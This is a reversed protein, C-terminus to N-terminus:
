GATEQLSTGERALKFILVMVGDKMDARLTEPEIKAPLPVSRMFRGYKREGIFLDQEQLDRENESRGEIIVLMATAHVAVADRCIGPLAFEMVLFGERAFMDMPPEWTEEEMFARSRYFLEGYLANMTMRISELGLMPDWGWGTSGFPFMRKGVPVIIESLKGTKPSAKKRAM